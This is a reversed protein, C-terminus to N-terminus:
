VDALLANLGAATLAEATLQRATAAAHPDAALGPGAHHQASLGLVRRRALNGDVSPPCSPCDVIAKARVPRQVHRPHGCDLRVWCGPNDTLETALRAAKETGTDPVVPIPTNAV